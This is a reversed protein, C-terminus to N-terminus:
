LIETHIIPLIQELPFGHTFGTLSGSIKEIFSIGTTNMSSYGAAWQTVPHDNVYDTLEQNTLTRFTVKTESSGQFQHRTQTNYIGWGTVLLHSAGSFTKLVELADMKYKPKGIIKNRYVAVTDAGIVLANKYQDKVARAKALAIEITRRHPEPDVYISEDINSPVILAELGAIKLLAQRNQSSSALILKM